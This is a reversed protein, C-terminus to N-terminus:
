AYPAHHRPPPSLWAALTTLIGTPAHPSAPLRLAAGQGSRLEEAVVIPVSLLDHLRRDLDRHHRFMAFQRLNPQESRRFPKM